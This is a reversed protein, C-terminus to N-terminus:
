KLRYLTGITIGARTSTEQATLRGDPIPVEPAKALKRIRGQLLEAKISPIKAITEGSYTRKSGERQPAEILGRKVYRTLASTSIGCMAAAEAVTYRREPVPQPDAAM